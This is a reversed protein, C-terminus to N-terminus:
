GAAIRRDVFDNWTEGGDDRNATLNAGARLAAGAIGPLNFRAVPRDIGAARLFSRALDRAEYAFPGGIDALRGGPGSEVAEVLRLAMRAPDLVQFRTDNPVPLAPLRALAALGDWVRQHFHTARLITWRPASAVTEEARTKSRLYPLPVLDCGVMGPYVLHADGAVDAITAAAVRDVSRHNRRDTACHVVAAVGALEEAVRGADTLDLAVGTVGPLRPPPRRHFAARVPIGRAALRAVTARGLVGTSGTVLVPRRGGSSEVM